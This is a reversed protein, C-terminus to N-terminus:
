PCNDCAIVDNKLCYYVFASVHSAWSPFGSISPAPRLTVYRVTVPLPEESTVILKCHLCKGHSEHQPPKLLHGACINHENTDGYKSCKFFCVARMTENYQSGRIPPNCNSTRYIFLMIRFDTTKMRADFKTQKLLFHPSFMHVTCLPLLLIVSFIVSRPVENKSM